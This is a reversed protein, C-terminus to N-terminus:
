HDAPLHPQISPKGRGFDFIKLTIEESSPFCSKDHVFGQLSIRETIFVPITDRPFSPDQPVVPICEPTFYDAIATEDVQQFQPIAIGFNGNHPDLVCRNNAM